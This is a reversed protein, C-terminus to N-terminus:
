KPLSRPSSSWRSNWNGRFWREVQRQGPSAPGSAPMRSSIPLLGSPALPRDEHAVVVLEREVLEAVLLALLHEGGEGRLLVHLQEPAPDPAAQRRHEVTVLAPDAADVAQEQRERARRHQEVALLDAHALVELDVAAQGDARGHLPGVPRGGPERGGIGLSSRRGRGSPRNPGAATL